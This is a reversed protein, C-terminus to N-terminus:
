DRSVRADQEGRKRETDYLPLPDLLELLQSYMGNYALKTKERLNEKGGYERLLKAEAESPRRRDIIPLDKAAEAASADPDVTTPPQQQDQVSLNAPHNFPSPPPQHQTPKGDTAPNNQTDPNPNSKQSNEM